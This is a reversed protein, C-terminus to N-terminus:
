ILYQFAEDDLILLGNIKPRELRGTVKSKGSVNGRINSVAGGGFPNLPNLIFENFSLDLNLFSKDGSVDLNGVASFSESLDNQIKIDVDYNTLSSNGSIDFGGLNFGNVNFNINSLLSKPLYTGNSKLLELKGNM